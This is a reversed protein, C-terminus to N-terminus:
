EELYEDEGWCDIRWAPSRAPDPALYVFYGNRSHTLNEGSKGYIYLVDGNRSLFAKRMADVDTAQAWNGKCLNSGTMSALSEYLTVVLPRADEAKMWLPLEVQKVPVRAIPELRLGREQLRDCRWEVPEENRRFCDVSDWRESGDPQKMRVTYMNAALGDSYRCVYITKSDIRWDVAKGAVSMLESMVQPRIKISNCTEARGISAGLMLISAILLRHM